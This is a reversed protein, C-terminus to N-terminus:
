EGLMRMANELSLRMRNFSQSLSSIEDRGSRVYESVSLKGLSVENAMHAIRVVPQIVVFHLLINLLILLFSTYLLCGGTARELLSQTGIENADAGVM